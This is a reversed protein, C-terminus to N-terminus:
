IKEFLVGMMTFGIIENENDRVFEMPSPPIDLLDKSLTSVATKWAGNRYYYFLTENELRLEKGIQFEKNYYTGVFQKLENTSYEHPILEKFLRPMDGDRDDFIFQKGDQEISFKIRSSFSGGIFAFNHNGLPLLEGIKEGDTNQYILSKGKRKIERVSYDENDYFLYTGEYKQLENKSITISKVTELENNNKSSAIPQIYLDVLYFFRERFDWNFKNQTTFFALDLEPFYLYKSVFGGIFMGDFGVGKYGNHTEFEVGLGFDITKGNNLKAKTHMKNWLESTGITSNKIGQHWKFIDKPTSLVQGDGNYIFSSIQTKDYEGDNETYGVARNKITSYTSNIKVTNTMGLPLFIQEQIFDVFSKGSVNETITALLIYNSNTYHYYEGPKFKLAKINTIINIMQSQSLYDYWRLDLVDWYPEVDKIGSTQSLLNEITPNGKKYRPLNEIYKYAPDTISLKGEEELLLIAAATFQKGISGINFVTENSIPVNYDLNAIGYQKELIIENGKIVAISFGPENDNVRYLKDIESELNQSSAFNTLLCFALLKLIFAIRKM